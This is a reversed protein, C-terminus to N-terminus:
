LRQASRRFLPASLHALGAFPDQSVDPAGQLATPEIGLGFRFQPRPYRRMLAVQERRSRCREVM